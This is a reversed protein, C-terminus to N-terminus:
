SPCNVRYIWKTEGIKENLLMLLPNVPATGGTVVIDIVYDTSPANRPPNWDFSVTGRHYAFGGTGAIQRGKYYVRLDDPINYMDYPITILGPSPGLYHHTRTIGSGGSATEENCPQTNRPAAPPLARALKKPPPLNPKPTPPAPQPPLAPPQPPPEPKPPPPPPVPKVPPSLPRVPPPPPVIAPAPKPLPPLPPPPPPVFRPWFLWAGVGLVALVCILLLWLWLWSRRRSVPPPPLDATFPDIQGHPSRFGWFALVLQSGVAYVHDASPVEMATRLIHALNGDRTNHGARELTRALAALERGLEKRVPDLAAREADPLTRWPRIIGEAPTTWVIQCQALTPRAFMRAYTEGFRHRLLDALTAHSLYVPSNFATLAILGEIDGAAVRRETMASFDTSALRFTGEHFSTHQQSFGLNPSVTDIEL